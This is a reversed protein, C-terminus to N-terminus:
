QIESEIRLGSSLFESFSYLTLGASNLIAIEEGNLVSGSANSFAAFSGDSLEEYTHNSRKWEAWTKITVGEEGGEMSSIERNRIGDPVEKSLDAATLIIVVELGEISLGAGEISLINAIGIDEVDTVTLSGQEGKKEVFRGRYIAERLLSDFPGDPKFFTKYDGSFTVQM